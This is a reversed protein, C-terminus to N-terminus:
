VVYIVLLEGCVWFCVPLYCGACDFILNFLWDFTSVGFLFCWCFAIVFWGVYDAAAAFLCFLYYALIYVCGFCAVTLLVCHVIIWAFM